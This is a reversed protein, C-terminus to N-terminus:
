SLDCPRLRLLAVWSHSFVLELALAHVCYRLRLRWLFEINLLALALTISCACGRSFSLIWSRLHSRLLLRSLFWVNLLALALALACAFECSYLVDSSSHVLALACACSGSRLRALACSLACSLALARLFALDCSYRLIFRVKRSVLPCQQWAILGLARRQCEIFSRVSFTQEEYRLASCALQVVHLFCLCARPALRLAYLM